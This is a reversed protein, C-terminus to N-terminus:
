LKILEGAQVRSRFSAYETPNNKVSFSIAAAKDGKLEVCKAAVLTEFKSEVKAPAAAEASVSAVAPAGFTKAFEKLASEAAFKAALQVAENQASMAAAADPKKEEPMHAELKMMRDNMSMLASEMMVEIEKKSEPNMNLLKTETEPSDSELTNTDTGTKDTQLQNLKRSFFGAPNAAPESVIDVSYIESCRQLM